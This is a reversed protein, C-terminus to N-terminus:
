TLRVAFERERSLFFLFGVAAVALAWGASSIWLFSSPYRGEQVLQAYGGLMSYMPNLEVLTKVTRGFHNISEPLWLVPSLYMWIRVFYPLFSSTDRFYVQLTAFFAALGMGFVVMTALFYVSLLIRFHWPSGFIIHFVFYVPVTPLFRFFATRVASLPILLRPFATNILLKGSTTVSTAGSTVSTSVLTFAFLSLTLHNFLAPDHKQRLITVLLYYVGALLLPNLVLWAQGFFTSTNAGRMSAKSMEAAFTRRHWLERFYNILPPLGARHPGYQHYVTDFESETRSERSPATM